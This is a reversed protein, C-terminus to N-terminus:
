LPRSRALVLTMLGLFVGAAAFIEGYRQPNEFGLSQGIQHGAMGLLCLFVLSTLLRM